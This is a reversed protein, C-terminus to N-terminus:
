EPKIVVSLSRRPCVFMDIWRWEEYLTYAFVEADDPNSASVTGVHRIPEAAEHRAFVEYYERQLQSM